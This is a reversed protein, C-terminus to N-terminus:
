AVDVHQDPLDTRSECSEPSYAAPSITDRATINRGWNTTTTAKGDIAFLACGQARAPRLLMARM